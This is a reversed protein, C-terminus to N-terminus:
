STRGRRLLSLVIPSSEPPLAWFVTNARPRSFRGDQDDQVIGGGADVHRGAKREVREHALLSAPPVSSGPPRRRIMIFDRRYAVTDMDKSVTRDCRREFAGKSGSCIAAGQTSSGSSRSIWRLGCRLALATSAPGAPDEIGRDSSVPQNEDHDDHDADEGHQPRLGIEGGAVEERDGGRLGIM